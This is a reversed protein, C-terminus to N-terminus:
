ALEQLGVICQVYQIDIIIIVRIYYTRFQCPVDGFSEFLDAVFEDSREVSRDWHVTVTLPLRTTSFAISYASTSRLTPWLERPLFSEVLSKRSWLDHIQPPETIYPTRDQWGISIKVLRMPRFWSYRSSFKFKATLTTFNAIIIPITGFGRLDYTAM